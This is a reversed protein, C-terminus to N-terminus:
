CNDSALPANGQGMVQGAVGLSLCCYKGEDKIRELCQSPLEPLALPLLHDEIELLGEKTAAPKMLVEKLIVKIKEM